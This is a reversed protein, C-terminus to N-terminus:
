ARLRCPRRASPRVGPSEPATPWNWCSTRAREPRTTCKGSMGAYAPIWILAGLCRYIPQTGAKAPVLPHFLRAMGVFYTRAVTPMGGGVFFLSYFHIQFKGSAGREDGPARLPDPERNRLPQRAFAHMHVEDGARPSRRSFSAVASPLAVPTLTRVSAASRESAAARSRTAAANGSTSMRILLAPAMGPPEISSTSSDAQRM